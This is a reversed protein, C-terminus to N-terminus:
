FIEKRNKSLAKMKNNQEHFLLHRVLCFPQIQCRKCLLQVMFPPLEKKPGSLLHLMTIREGNKKDWKKSTGVHQIFRHWLPYSLNLIFVYAMYKDKKKMLVRNDKYRSTVSTLITNIKHWFTTITFLVNSQVKYSDHIKNYPWPDSDKQWWSLNNTNGTALKVGTDEWCDGSAIFPISFSPFFYARPSQPYRRKQQPQLMSSIGQVATPWMRDRWSSPRAEPSYTAM